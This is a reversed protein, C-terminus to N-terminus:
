TERKNVAMAGTLKDDVSALETQNLDKSTNIEENKGQLVHYAEM